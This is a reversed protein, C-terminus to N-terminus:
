VLCQGHKTRKLLVIPSGSAAQTVAELFAPIAIAKLKFLKSLMHVLILPPFCEAGEVLEIM